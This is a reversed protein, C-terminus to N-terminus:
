LSLGGNHICCCELQVRALCLVIGEQFSRGRSAAFADDQDIALFAQVIRAVSQASVLLSEGAVVDDVVRFEDMVAVPLRRGAVLLRVRQHLQLIWGVADEAGVVQHRQAADLSELFEALRDWPVDRHDTEVVSVDGLEVHRRERGEM